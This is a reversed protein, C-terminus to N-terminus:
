LSFGFGLGRPDEHREEPKVVDTNAELMGDARLRLPYSRVANFAPLSKAKGTKLDFRAGHRPCELECARQLVRGDALPADDHTCRDEIAYFEGNVNAVLVHHEGLDYDKSKGAPIESAPGLTVWTGEPM